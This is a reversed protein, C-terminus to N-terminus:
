RFNASGISVDGALFERLEGSPLRVLLGGQESLGVTEGEVFGETNTNIRVFRGMTCNREMWRDRLWSFGTTKYEEYYYEMLQLVKQLLKARVIEKGTEIQVSTASTLSDLPFDEKTHNVNIGIGIVVYEAKGKTKASKVESLIGCIKRGKVLVDNPWKVQADIGFERALTEALAAAALFTLMSVQSMPMEPRLILSFYIGKGAPSVWQRNFRGRGANQKESVVVAGDPAGEQAWRAAFINTSDVEEFARVVRGMFRTSIGDEVDWPFLTEPLHLLRASCGGEYVIQYGRAELTHLAKEVEEISLQLIEAICKVDEPENRNEKLFKLVMLSDKDLLQIEKEMM